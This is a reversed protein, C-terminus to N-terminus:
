MPWPVARQANDSDGVRRVGSQIVIGTDDVDIQMTDMSRPAPGFFRVGAKTYSSGHCPCIFDGKRKLDDHPSVVDGRWPVTCGLHPCRWWLALLGGAARQEDSAALGENPALNVLWCHADIIRQPPAGPQPIDSAAVAVPGGFTGTDRPYLANVITAGIGGFLALISSWFAVRLVGRRSVRLHDASTVTITQGTREITM